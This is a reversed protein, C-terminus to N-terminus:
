LQAAHRVRRYRGATPGGHHTGHHRTSTVDLGYPLAWAIHQAQSIACLQSVCEFECSHDAQTDSSSGGCCTEGFQGQVEGPFVGPVEVGGPVTEGPVPTYIRNSNPGLPGTVTCPLSWGLHGSTASEYSCSDWGEHFPDPGGDGGDENGGGDATPIGDTGGAGGNHHHGGPEATSCAFSPLTLALVATLCPIGFSGCSRVPMRSIAAACATRRARVRQASMSDTSLHPSGNEQTQPRNADKMRVFSAHESYARYPLGLAASRRPIMSSRWRDLIRLEFLVRRHTTIASLGSTGTSEVPAAGFDERDRPGLGLVIFDPSQDLLDSLQGDGTVSLSASLTSLSSLANVSSQRWPLSLSAASAAKKRVM